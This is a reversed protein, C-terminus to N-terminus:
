SPAIQRLGRSLEVVDASQERQANLV